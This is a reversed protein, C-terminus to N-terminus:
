QFLKEYKINLFKAIKRKLPESNYQGTIVNHICSAPKGVAKGVDALKYGKYKIISFVYEGKRDNHPLEFLLNVAPIKVSTDVQTETKIAYDVAVHICRYYQCKEPCVIPLDAVAAKTLCSSYNECDDYRNQVYGTKALM